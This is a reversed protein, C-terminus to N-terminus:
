IVGCYWLLILVATLLRPLLCHLYRPPTVTPVGDTLLLLQRRRISTGLGLSAATRLVDMGQLLGSWLNTGGGAKLSGLVSDVQARGGENMEGLSFVVASTSSFAM